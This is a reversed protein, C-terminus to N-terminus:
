KEKCTSLKRPNFILSHAHLYELHKRFHDKRTASLQKKSNKPRVAAFVLYSIISGIIWNVYYCLAWFFMPVPLPTQISINFESRGVRNHKLTIAITIIAMKMTRGKSSNGAHSMQLTTLMDSFIWYLPVSWTAGTWARSGYSLNLFSTEPKLSSSFWVTGSVPWVGM